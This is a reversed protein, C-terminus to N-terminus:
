GVFPLRIGLQHTAGRVIVVGVICFLWSSTELGTRQMWSAFRALPAEVLRAALVRAGLLALAPLIMVACYGALAAGSAVPGLGADALLTMGLLYPLMTAIETIGAALAVGVVAMAGASGSEAGLLRERWRLVRGGGPVGRKRHQVDLYWLWLGVAFMAVGIWVLVWAGPDSAFFARGADVVNVLGLMAGIGVVFYFGAIVALYLLVRGARVRGPAILLFLPILLTGASLSDLLALIALAAPLPLSTLLDM